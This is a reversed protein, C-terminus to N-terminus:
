VYFLSNFRKKLKVNKVNVQGFPCHRCASGCCTGRQRHAFETFVKYGSGPDVYMQKQAECAETHVRHITREEETLPSEETGSDAEGRGRSPSVSEEAGSGGDRVEVEGGSGRESLERTSLM